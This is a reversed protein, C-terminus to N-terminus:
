FTASSFIPFRVSFPIFSVVTWSLNTQLHRPIKILATKFVVEDMRALWWPWTGAGAGRDCITGSFVDGIMDQLHSPTCKCHDHCLGKRCSIRPTCALVYITLTLTSLCFCRASIPSCRNSKSCSFSSCTTSTLTTSSTTSFSQEWVMGEEDCAMWNILCYEWM